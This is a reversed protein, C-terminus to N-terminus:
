FVGAKGISFALPPAPTHESLDFLARPKRWNRPAADLFFTGVSHAM